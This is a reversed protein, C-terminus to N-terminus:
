DTGGKRKLCYMRRRTGPLPLSRVIEFHALCAREFVMADLSAHLSERGRTLRRFMEDQPEIFEIVLLQNTLESALRLIEELPIRETVLLHHILALMLLGDFAGTARDLFSAYEANRWGLAPSPRALNMVLPLINLKRERAFRRIASVCVPDLDVAVVEAGAQAALASFHGTNAGADLVRAPKFLALSESVFKEKAAFAPDDYSHTGMYDSWASANSACPQLSNLSKGLRDFFSELIYQAKEANALLQPQYIKVDVADFKRSLWTPISVLPLMRPTFKELPGCWRYVEEPELGDLHTAFIEALSLGWRQNSLLPLLFTRVFQAHPKWIPDAPHRREFSLADIFVPGSDRFLVNNPTADKLCFGDALAAQALELTLQGAEWLMEPPWEHAFSPFQIKEHEFVVGQASFIPRLEPAERLTATESEGLRRSSVLKKQAIFRRACDTQLFGEFDSVAEASIFRLVRQNFILCCGAPDRFSPAPPSM